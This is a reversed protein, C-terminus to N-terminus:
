RGSAVASGLSIGHRAGSCEGARGAHGRVADLLKPVLGPQLPGAPGNMDSFQVAVLASAYRYLNHEYGVQRVRDASVGAAGSDLLLYGIFKQNSIVQLFLALVGMLVFPWAISSRRRRLAM